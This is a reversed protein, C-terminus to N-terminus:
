HLKIRCLRDALAACAMGGLWFRMVRGLIIELESIQCKAKEFCFPNTIIRRAEIRGTCSITEPITNTDNNEKKCTKSTHPIEQCSGIWSYVHSSIFKLRGLMKSGQVLLIFFIKKFFPKIM